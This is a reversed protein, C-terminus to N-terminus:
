YMRHQGKKLNKPDNGKKGVFCTEKAHQLYFGHSKALKSNSTHKVWAIEDVLTYGWHELLDLAFRYKSNIVWLFIFKM